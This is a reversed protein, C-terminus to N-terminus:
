TELIPQAFLGDGLVFGFLVCHRESNWCYVHLSFLGTDGTVRAFLQTVM